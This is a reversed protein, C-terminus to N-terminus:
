DCNKQGTFPDTVCTAGTDADDGVTNDTDVSDDSVDEDGANGSDEVTVDGGTDPHDDENNVTNDVINGSTDGSSKQDESVQSSTESGTDYSVDWGGPDEVDNAADKGWQVCNPWTGVTGPPCTQQVPPPPNDTPVRPLGKPIKTPNYVPNACRVLIIAKSGDALTIIIAKRDGYIGGAEAIGYTGDFIGSNIASAPAQGEEFKTGSAMLVGKFQNYLAQGEQSLCNSKDVLTTWASTDKFLGFAHAWSALVQADKGSESILLDRQAVSLNNAKATAEAYKKEFDSDVRNSVHSVPTQQYEAKCPEPSPTGTPTATPAPTESSAEAGSGRLATASNASAASGIGYMVTLLIAVVVMLIGASSGVRRVAPRNM